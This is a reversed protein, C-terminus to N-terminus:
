NRSYEYYSGQSCHHLGQGLSYCGGSLRSFMKTDRQELSMSGQQCQGQLWQRTSVFTPYCGEEDSGGDQDSRWLKWGM